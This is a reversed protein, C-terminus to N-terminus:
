VTTPSVTIAMCHGVGPKSPLVKSSYTHVYVSRSWAKFLSSKFQIYSWVSVWELSQLSFSQVTHIVMCQGTGPRLPLVKSGYIHGYVSRSWAIFPSGEFQIYPCISVWELRYLSFRQVSQIVMCQGVGPKLPLVKSLEPNEVSPVQIEADATGWQWSM